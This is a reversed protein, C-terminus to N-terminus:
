EEDNEPPSNCKTQTVWTVPIAYSAYEALILTDNCKKLKNSAVATASGVCKKKGVRQKQTLLGMVIPFCVLCCDVMFLQRVLYFLVIIKQEVYFWVTLIKKLPKHATKIPKYM